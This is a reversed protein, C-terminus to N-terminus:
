PVARRCAAGVLDTGVFGTLTLTGQPTQIVVPTAPSLAALDALTLPTGGISVSQLYRVAIAITGGTAESADAPSTLGHEFVDTAGAAAGNNDVPVISPGSAADTRGNVTITLTTNSTDGDSDTITYSVVETLTEGDKLANVVANNNDLTYTYSGDANLM